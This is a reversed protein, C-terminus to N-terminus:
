RKSFHRDYHRRFANLLDNSTGQRLDGRENAEHIAENYLDHFERSRGPWETGEYGPEAMCTCHDHSRFDATEETFYVPGRSSLMACFACPKGSTVRSWGKAKSDGGTSRLLTGRGGNLVNRTVTGSTNTFATDMAAQPTKGAALSRQVSFQGTEYLSGILRDETDPTMSDALRPEAHGGPDEATRFAQFYASSLASSTQQHARVLVVAAEVLRRFSAEDGTFLPWLRLYDRLAVARLQVQAKYHQETLAKGAASRAM